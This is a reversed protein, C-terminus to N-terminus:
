KLSPLSILVILAFVSAVLATSVVIIALELRRLDMPDGYVVKAVRNLM